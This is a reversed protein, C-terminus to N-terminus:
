QGKEKVEGFYFRHYAVLAEFYHYYDLLKRKSDGIAKLYELLNAKHVFYEVINDFDNRPRDHKDRGCEYVIRIRASTLIQLQSETLTDSDSRKIENYLDVFLGFLKRLKTTTIPKFSNNREQLGKMGKIIQEAADVYNAPVEMTGAVKAPIPQSPASNRQNGTQNANMGQRHDNLNYSAM